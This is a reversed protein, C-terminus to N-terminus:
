ASKILYMLYQPPTRQKVLMTFSLPFYIFVVFMWKKDFQNNQLVEDITYHNAHEDRTYHNAHEDGTYHNAHEDRTRYITPKTWM